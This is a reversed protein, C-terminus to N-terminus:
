NNTVKMFLELNSFKRRDKQTIRINYKNKLHVIAKDRVTEITRRLRQNSISKKQREHKKTFYSALSKDTRSLPAISSFLNV